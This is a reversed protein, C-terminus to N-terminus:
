THLQLSIQTSQYKTGNFSNGFSFYDQCSIHNSDIMLSVVFLCREGRREVTPKIVWKIDEKDLLKNQWNFSIFVCKVFNCTQCEIIRKMIFICELTLLEKELIRLENKM